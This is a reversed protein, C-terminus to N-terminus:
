PNEKRYDTFSDYPSFDKDQEEWWVPSASALPHLAFQLELLKDFEAETLQPNLPLRILQDAVVATHVLAVFERENIESMARAAGRGEKLCELLRTLTTM